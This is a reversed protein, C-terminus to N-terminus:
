SQDGVALEDEARSRRANAVPGDTVQYERPELHQGPVWGATLRIRRANAVGNHGMMGTM